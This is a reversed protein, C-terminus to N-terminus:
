GHNDRIRINVGKPKAKAELRLKPEHVTSSQIHGILYEQDLISQLIPLKFLLQSCRLLTDVAEWPEAKVLFWSGDVVVHLFSTAKPPTKRPVRHVTWNKAEVNNVVSRNNTWRYIDHIHLLTTNM